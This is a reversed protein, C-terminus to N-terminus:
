EETKQVARERKTRTAHKKKRRTLLRDTRFGKEYTPQRQKTKRKKGSPKKISHTDSPPRTKKRSKMEKPAPACKDHSVEEETPAMTMRTLNLSEQKQAHIASDRELKRLQRKLRIFPPPRLVVRTDKPKEREMKAFAMSPASVPAVLKRAEEELFPPEKQDQSSEHTPKSQNSSEDTGDQTRPASTNTIALLKTVQSQLDEVQNQLQRKEHTANALHIALEDLLKHFQDDQSGSMEIPKFSSASHAPPTPLTRIAFSVPSLGSNTDQTLRSKTTRHKYSLLFIPFM